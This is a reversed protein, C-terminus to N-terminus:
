DVEVEVRCRLHDVTDGSCGSVGCNCSGGSLCASDIFSIAGDFTSAYDNDIVWDVSESCDAGDWSSCRDLNGGGSCSKYGGEYYVCRAIGTESPMTLGSCSSDDVTVYDYVPDCVERDPCVAVRSIGCDGPVMYCDESVYEYSACWVNRSVEDNCETADSWDGTRWEVNTCIGQNCGVGPDSCTGCDMTGGCSDIHVGCEYGVDSCTTCFMKGFDILEQVTMIEGSKSYAEIDSALHGINTENVLNAYGTIFSDTDSANQLTMTYGNPTRILIESALHTYYPYDSNQTPSVSGFYNENIADQVTINFGDIEVIVIDSSHWQFEQGVEALVFALLFVLSILIWLRKRM